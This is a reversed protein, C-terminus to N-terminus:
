VDFSYVCYILWMQFLRLQRLDHLRGGHAFRGVVPVPKARLGPVVDNVTLYIAHESDPWKLKYTQGELAQPRDLPESM